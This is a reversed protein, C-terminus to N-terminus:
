IERRNNGTRESLIDTKRGQERRDTLCVTFRKGKLFSEKVKQICFIGERSFFGYWPICRCIRKFFKPHYKGSFIKL